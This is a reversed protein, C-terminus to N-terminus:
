KALCTALGRVIKMDDTVPPQTLRILLSQDNPIQGELLLNACSSARSAQETLFMPGPQQLFGSRFKRTCVLSARGIGRVARRIAASPDPVTNDFAQGCLSAALLSLTLLRLAPM